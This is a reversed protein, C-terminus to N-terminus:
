ILVIMVASLHKAMKKWVSLGWFGETPPPLNKYSLQRAICVTLRTHWAWCPTQCPLLSPPSKLLVVSSTAMNYPTQHPPSEQEPTGVYTLQRFVGQWGWMLCGTSSCHTSIWEAQSIHPGLPPQLFFLPGAPIHAGNLYEKYPNCIYPEKQTLAHLNTECLNESNKTKNQQEM